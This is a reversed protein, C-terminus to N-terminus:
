MSPLTKLAGIRILEATKQQQLALLQKMEIRVEEQYYLYPSISRIQERAVSEDIFAIDDALEEINRSAPWLFSCNPGCLSRTATLQVTGQWPVNALTAKFIAGDILIQDGVRLNFGPDAIHVHVFPVNEDAINLSSLPCFLAARVCRSFGGKYENVFVPRWRSLVEDYHQNLGGYGVLVDKQVFESYMDIKPPEGIHFIRAPIKVRDVLQIHLTMGEHRRSKFMFVYRRLKWDLYERQVSYEDSFDTCLEYFDRSEAFLRKFFM